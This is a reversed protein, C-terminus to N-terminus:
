IGPGRRTRGRLWRGVRSERLVTLVALEGEDVSRGITSCGTDIPQFRGDRGIDHLGAGDDGTRQDGTDAGIKRALDGGLDRLVDVVRRGPLIKENRLARPQDAEVIALDGEALRTDQQDPGPQDHRVALEITSSRWVPASM